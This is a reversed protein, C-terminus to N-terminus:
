VVGNWETTNWWDLRLRLFKELGFYDKSWHNMLRIWLLNLVMDISWCWILILRWKEIRRIFQGGVCDFEFELLETNVVIVVSM